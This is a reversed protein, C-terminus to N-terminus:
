LCTSKAACAYTLGVFFVAVPNVALVGLFTWAARAGFKSFAWCVLALWAMLFAGGAWAFGEIWTVSMLITATVALAYSSLLVPAFSPRRPKSLGIVM